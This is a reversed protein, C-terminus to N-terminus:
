ECKHNNFYCWTRFCKEANPYFFIWYLYLTITYMFVCRICYSRLKSTDTHITNNGITPHWYAWLFKRSYLYFYTVHSKETTCFYTMTHTTIASCYNNCLLVKTKIGCYNTKHISAFLWWVYTYVYHVICFLM